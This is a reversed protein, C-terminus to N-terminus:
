PTPEKQGYYANKGHKRSFHKNLLCDDICQTKSNILLTKLNIKAIEELIFANELTKEISAGWVFPGHSYVLCAPIQLSDLDKKNFTEIIVKGTNKEYHDEIEYREMERTVPIEGNFYDAHTTGLCIIPKKAQAFAVANESHTHIVSKIGQFNNYLELHTPTDSSPKKTGEVVNGNLDLIVMDEKKLEYFDVGSPKIAVYKGSDDIGSVNGFTFKVLGGEVLKKNAKCVEKKLDELM